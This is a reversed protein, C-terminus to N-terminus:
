EDPFEYTYIPHIRQGPDIKKVSKLRGTHIDYIWGHLMPRRHKKWALQV